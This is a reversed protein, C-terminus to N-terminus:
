FVQGRMLRSYACNTRCDFSLHGVSVNRQITAKKKAALLFLSLAYTATAGVLLEHELIGPKIQRPFFNHGFYAM